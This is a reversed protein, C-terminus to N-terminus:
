FTKNPGIRSTETAPVPGIKKIENILSEAAGSFTTPEAACTSIMQLRNGNLGIEDMIQKAFEVVKEANQIGKLHQCNEPKCGILLIGDAGHEFTKFIQYLSVWSLCPIRIPLISAPYKKGGMGALDVTAYGCEDCCFAAIKPSLSSLGKSLLAGIQNLAQDDTYHRLQIAGTPCRSACAGCRDCRVEDIKAISRTKSGDTKDVEVMQLAAFPCADICVKCGDCDEEKVFAIDMIKHYTSKSLDSVVQFAVAEAQTVSEPIDKPAQAGGCVYIGKVNTEIQKLKPYLEKIFGDSDVEVGLIKALNETGATPRMAVSLVVLDTELELPMNLLTDEVRVILSNKMSDRYIESPKGRIFTVGLERARTFYQEYGKGPTRIDMYCFQIEADPGYEEKILIAHKLALMCCIKSCYANTNADRSGVCQIMTIRKPPKGDSPKVLQGGTPGFPDLIRSLELQTIVDKDAKYKYQKISSPDYEQFGTAIVIAGFNQQSEERKESLDVARTPCIEACKGCKTCDKWDIVPVPPVANPYPLYIAKRTSLGYNFENSVDVPCAEICKGCNTCLKEKVGRPKSSIKVEFNGYSGKVKEVESLTQVKINPHQLLGARYYCKRIGPVLKSSSICFAGDNTPFALGLKLANGGIVPAKEVLTVKHGFDAVDIATQLGALGAGIVLVSKAMEFEREEIPKTCRAKEVAAAVVRKAKETAGLADNSHPWACQERVNAMELMYPNFGIKKLTQRFLPEYLKPTCAAIVLRRAGDKAVAKLENKGDDSCLFSHRKVSNVCELRSVYEKLQEFDIIRSIEKGCDCLFVDIASSAKENIEKEKNM